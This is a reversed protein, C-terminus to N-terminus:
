NVILSGILLLSNTVNEPLPTINLNQDGLGWKNLLWRCNTKWLIRGMGWEVRKGTLFFYYIVIWSVEWQRSNYAWFPEDLLRPVLPKLVWFEESKLFIICHLHWISWLVSLPNISWYFVRVNMSLLIFGLCGRMLETWTKGDFVTTTKLVKWFATIFIRLGIGTQKLCLCVIM